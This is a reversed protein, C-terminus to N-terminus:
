ARSSKKKKGSKKKKTKDLKAAIRAVDLKGANGSAIGEQLEAKLARREMEILRAYDDRSLVVAVERGQKVITVPERLATDLVLGFRNKADTANFSSM